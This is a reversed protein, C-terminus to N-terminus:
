PWGFGCLNRTRLSRVGLSEWYGFPDELRMMLHPIDSGILLVTHGRSIMTSIWREHEPIDRILKIYKKSLATLDQGEPLNVLALVYAGESASLQLLIEDLIHLCAHCVKYFPTSSDVRPNVTWEVLSTPQHIMLGDM